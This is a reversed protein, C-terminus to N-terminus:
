REDSAPLPGTTLPLTLQRPGAEDVLGSASLGVLRAPRRGAETQTRLLAIATEALRDPEATPRPLTRRRTITEFDHYRLKLTVTRARRGIRALSRAVRAAQDRLSDALAELRTVDEAFTHESGKSKPERTPTVRRADRGHALAHLVEGHKGLARRMDALPVQRLDAATRAGLAHLRKTTAPGVGWLKDVPLAAIFADVRDPPIVVLGDPKRLDSAIKAVLKNPGVGASATLGLEARIRAKLHRAVERALPEGLHNDTVDLYAEDLSLPEVLDTAEHFIARIARSVDAYRAIRPRLFTAEPCRRLAMACPMASRVGFRRAEYSAAAVVGRGRPDGGVIVPRGRLQPHDRQEVSAFFADM